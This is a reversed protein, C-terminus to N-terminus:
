VGFFELESHKLILHSYTPQADSLTCIDSTFRETCIHYWSESCEVDPLVDPQLSMQLMTKNCAYFWINQWFGRTKSQMM